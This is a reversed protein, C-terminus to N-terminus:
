KTVKLSVKYAVKKDGKGFYVNVIATGKGKATIVGDKNVKAVKTKNSKYSDPRVSLEPYDIQYTEGVKLTIRTYKQNPVEVRLKKDVTKGNKKIVRIVVDGNKIPTVRGHGNVKAISPDLSIFKKADKVKINYKMGKIVVGSKSATPKKAPKVDPKVDPTVDKGEYIAKVEEDTLAGNYVKVDDFKTDRCDEDNWIPGSGVKVDNSNQICATGPAKEFCASLDKKDTAILEGNLYVKIGNKSVTYTVHEWVGRKGTNTPICDSYSVANIRGLLNAGIRTVPYQGLPKDPTSQDAEFLGSHEATDESINAWMSVSYGAGTVNQLTDSPLSLYNVKLDKANSRVHLINGREPDKEIKANGVLTADEKLISSSISPVKGDKTTKEFDYGTIVQPLKYVTVKYDKKKTIDGKKITATLTVVKDDKASKVTGDNAIVKSDSSKWSVTAGSINTPLTINERTDTPMQKDLQTFARDVTNEDTLEIKSGWISENNNGIATFTMTEEENDNEQKYFVGKYTVGKIDVTVYDCSAADEKKWTGVEDGSITGDPNLQISETQLMNGSTASTGHNIFEYTGYVESDDYHSIKENRNEYVATVPWGDQNMFQQRVRLEHTEGRDAFRQHSILYHNGDETVLASNHGASKYGPQNFFQYNGILKIGYQDCNKGSNRAERGAADVYPGMPNKSRFLRMNYGGSASLGGYTEYLYYYDTTKDYQIYPGEGSQHNGGAIHTGFYRDVTNGNEDVSDKGPYIAEGTTPDLELMFLGGSWSGYVMYLKQENKDFFIGPDIANPAYNNDWTGDAKFCKDTSMDEIVGQDVLKKLHLYDKTWTTDRTSNGDYEPKGTNTFGSYMITDVYKFDGDPRKSVMYGICSRRWTSSTCYYLMYAGKSGDEWKYQPNYIIDPAWVAYGNKADGDHYGAWKFSEKLNEKVNGYIPDNDANSYDASIQTWNALDTTKATALHSGFAYYTGPNKPDEFISPDHVSARQIKGTVKPLNTSADAAKATLLNLPAGEFATATVAATMAIAITRVAKKRM